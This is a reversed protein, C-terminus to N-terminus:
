HTFLATRRIRASLIWARPPFPYDVLMAASTNLANEVGLSADLSWTRRAFTRSLLLDSMWYSPLANLASGVVSRRSGIYRTTIDVRALAPAFSVHVNGTDRPRYAVQGQLVGGAYTVNTRAANGDIAVRAAPLRLSVALEGGRRHVNYNLPSWIFRFDPFWLIMGDIDARYAALAGAVSVAGVTTEALSLRVEADQRSREARLSPNARVRVGEHFFQDSLTPPAYGAGVSVGLSLAHRAVSAAVRPSVAEASEGSASRSNHDVRTSFDGTWHVDSAGLARTMAARAWLGSLTQSHPATAALMTSTVDLTRFEGGLSTTFARNTLTSSASTTTGTAGITDDFPDGLPPSLDTFTGHERTIDSALAWALTRGVTPSNTTADLARIGDLALGAGFREHQQRGTLSPQIISGALGRATREWAGRVLANGFQKHLSSSAVLSASRMDANGRTATGGGRVPPLTYVFDGASERVDATLSATPQLPRWADARGVTVSAGREGFAGARLLVSQDSTPTRTEIEVVGAAARAGYRASQAGTRVVVSNIRELTLLSLDAEGTLASNAPVGDILVLVQGPSSGRISITTRQGAGGGRTVVVGPVSQLLEGVDRRGSQEIAARTFVAGDVGVNDRSGHAIYTALVPGLPVLTADLTTSRGNAVDAEAVFARFGIAAITVSHRRPELGRVVYSGSADTRVIESRGGVTVLAGVVPRSDTRTVHGRLEGAVQARARPTHALGTVFLVVLLARLGL